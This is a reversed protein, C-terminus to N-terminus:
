EIFSVFRGATTAANRFPITTMVFRCGFWKGIEAKFLKEQGAYQAALTWTADEMFDYELFPELVAAFFGDGYVMAKNQRLDRVAKRIDKGTLVDTATIDTIHAATLVQQDTFGAAVVNRSLSEVTEGMNTALIPVKQSINRDLATASVLSTIKVVKGYQAITGTVNEASIGVASPNVGETLATTSVAIPKYRSFTITKGEGAPLPRMQGLQEMVTLEEVRKLFKKDYWSQMLPSLLSTDTVIIAGCEDMCLFKIGHILFLIGTILKKLFM